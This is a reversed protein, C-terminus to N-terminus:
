CHDQRLLKVSMGVESMRRYHGAGEWREGMGERDRGVQVRGQDGHTFREHVAVSAGNERQEPVVTALFHEALPECRRAPVDLVTGDVGREVVKWRM